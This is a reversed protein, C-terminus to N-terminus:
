QLHWLGFYLYIHGNYLERPFLTGHKIKFGNDKLKQGTKELLDEPDCDSTDIM